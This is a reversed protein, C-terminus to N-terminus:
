ALLPIQFGSLLLVIEKSNDRCSSAKKQKFDSLVFTLTIGRFNDVLQYHNELEPFIMLNKLGFTHTRSNKSPSIHKKQTYDSILSMEKTCRPFIIKSLKDLFGYMLNERLIVKCGLIQHQRIKFNSISKRAYTLQPKQGSILELAALTFLIHKKDNVYNKSTTNLSIKELRALQMINTYNQKLILDCAVINEYYKKTLSNQKILSFKKKSRSEVKEPKSFLHTSKKTTM